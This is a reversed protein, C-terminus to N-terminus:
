RGALVPELGTPVSEFYANDVAPWGFAERIEALVQQYTHTEVYSAHRPSDIYQMAGRLDPYHSSKLHRFRAKEPGAVSLDIAVLQAMEDFRHYAADAFEIFGLVYLSDVQRNFVNLYLQPHRNRWEFV